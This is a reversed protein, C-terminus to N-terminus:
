GGGALATEWAKGRRGPTVRPAVAGRGTHWDPHDFHRGYAQLARIVRMAGGVRDSAGTTESGEMLGALLVHLEADAAEPLRCDRLIDDV